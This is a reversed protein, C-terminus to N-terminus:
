KPNLIGYGQLVKKEDEHVIFMVIEPRHKRKRVIYSIHFEIPQSDTKKFTAAWSVKVLSYQESIKDETLRLIQMSTLGAEISFNRMSKEFQWRTIFNNTRFAIGNPDAMMLKNSFLKAVSKFDFRQCFSEYLSFLNDIDPTSRIEM